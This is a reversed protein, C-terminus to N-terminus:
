FRDNNITEVIVREIFVTTITVAATYVADASTPSRPYADVRRTRMDYDNVRQAGPKKTSYEPLTAEDSDKREQEAGAERDLDATADPIKNGKIVRAVLGLGFADVSRGVLRADRIALRQVRVSAHGLARQERGDDHRENEM